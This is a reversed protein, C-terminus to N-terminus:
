HMNPNNDIIHFYYNLYGLTSCLCKAHIYYGLKLECMM